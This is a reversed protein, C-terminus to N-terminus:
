VQTLHKNRFAAGNGSKLWKEFAIAKDESDFAIYCEIKWPQYKSTHFSKGSNHEDLRRKLDSTHGTYIKNPFNLSRLIYTYFM